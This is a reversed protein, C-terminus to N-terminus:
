EIDPLDPNIRRANANALCKGVSSIRLASPISDWWDKLTALSHYQLVKKELNEKIVDDRSGDSGLEFVSRLADRQDDTLPRAESSLDGLPVISINGLDDVRRVFLRKYGPNLEHEVLLGAPIGAEELMGRAKKEEDSGTEFGCVTYGKLAEFLYDVYHKLSSLSSVRLADHIDLSDMWDEGSPLRDCPMMDFLDALVKIGEDVSASTPLYTSAAFFVTLGALEEDTLYDVIDIAKNVGTAVYRDSPTEFRKVLLEALLKKDRESDTRIAANAARGLTDVCSPERLSDFLQMREGVSGYLETKFDSLRREVILKSEALCSGIAKDCEFSVIDRVREESIGNVQIITSAQYQSSNDGAKQVQSNMTAGLRVWKFRNQGM